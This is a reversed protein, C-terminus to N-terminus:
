VLWGGARALLLGAVVVCLMAFGQQLRRGALRAAIQRGSILGLVAGLSFPLALNWALTGQWVAAAVGGLAVLAIVGLSTALVSIAPLNSYRHLAPVIVFGGGVGLLGSLLGSLLGTGALARACPRTWDFRGQEPNLQCPQGDVATGSVGSRGGRLSRVATWLLVLAFLVLLPRNPLRGALLVGLPTMLGGCLGVLLAARYRLIGQRWGLFAGLGAALGVALLGIPAAQRMPLDLGFVLLPVAIIGGGAGTLALVLGVFAGYLLALPTQQTFLAPGLPGLLAACSDFPM